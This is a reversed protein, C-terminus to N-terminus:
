KTQYYIVNKVVSIGYNERLRKTGPDRDGM